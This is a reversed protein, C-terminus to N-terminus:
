EWKVGERAAWQKLQEIITRKVDRPMFEPKQWGTGQPHQHRTNNRLWNNLGKRDFVVGAELLCNWIHYILGAQRDRRRHSTPKWGLRKLHSLVAQRGRDDLDRASAVGGVDQLMQRYESDPAKDQPDLGVEKAGIHIKALDNNRRSNM